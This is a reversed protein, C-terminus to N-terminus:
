IVVELVQSKQLPGHITLFVDLKGGAAVFAEVKFPPGSLGIDEFFGLM